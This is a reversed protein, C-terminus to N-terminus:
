DGALVCADAVPLEALESMLTIERSRQDASPECKSTYLSWGPVIVIQPGLIRGWPVYAQGENMVPYYQQVAPPKGM